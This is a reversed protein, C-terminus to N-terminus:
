PGSALTIVEMTITTSRMAIEFTGATLPVAYITCSDSGAATDPYPQQQNACESLGTDDSGAVFQGVVLLDVQQAARIDSYAVMFTGSARDFFGSSNKGSPVNLRWYQSFEALCAPGPPADGAIDNLDRLDRKLTVPQQEIDVAPQGAPPVPVVVNLTPHASRATSHPRNAWTRSAWATRNTGSTRRSLVSLQGVAGAAIGSVAGIEQDNEALRHFFREAACTFFISAGIMSKM